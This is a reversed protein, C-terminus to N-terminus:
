SPVNSSVYPRAADPTIEGRRLLEAISRELSVMGADAGTQILGPIQETEGERILNRVAPNAVLIEVIPVRGGSVRPLLRQSVVGTLAGALQVRVESQRDAPFADLIRDITQAADNTHITGFVLHGTEAVTLAAAITELDRMEGIVLINPDERLASRIADPFSRTDTGIERQHVLSRADTYVYEIPDEITIIHESRTQNIYEVLAAMTTTKGHGSPAAFLVFGKKPETFRLLTDPLSLDRLTRVTRSIARFVLAPEGRSWFMNVRFRLGDRSPEYAIDIGQREKFFQPARDIGMVCQVMQALDEASLPHRDELVRLAGDVRVIPSRGVSLHLDSANLSHVDRLFDQLLTEASM